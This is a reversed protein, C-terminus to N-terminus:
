ATRGRASGHPPGMRASAAVSNGTLGRRSSSARCGVDPRHQYRAGAAGVATGPPEEVSCFARALILIIEIPTEPAFLPGEWPEDSLDTDVDRPAGTCVVGGVPYTTALAVMSGGPLVPSQRSMGRRARMM